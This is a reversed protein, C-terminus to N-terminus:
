EGDEGEFILGCRAGDEDIFQRSRWATKMLSSDPDGYKRIGSLKLNLLTWWEM